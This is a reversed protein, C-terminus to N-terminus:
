TKLLFWCQFQRFIIPTVTIIWWKEFSIFVAIIVDNHRWLGGAFRKEGKIVLHLRFSPGRPTWFYLDVLIGLPPPAPGRPSLPRYIDVTKTSGIALKSKKFLVIVVPSYGYTYGYRRAKISYRYSYVDICRLYELLPRSYHYPPRRRHWVRHTRFGTVTSTNKNQKNLVPSWNLVGKARHLLTRMIWKFCAVLKFCRKSSTITDVNNM